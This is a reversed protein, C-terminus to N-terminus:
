DITAGSEKVAKGWRSMEGRILKGFHDPTSGAVDAGQEILKKQLETNQLAKNIEANLKVVIDKPLKAPGLIGFWTAAEFNKYGSEAITPTQPLDNVRKLSTVALARM